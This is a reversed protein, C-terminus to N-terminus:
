SFMYELLIRGQGNGGQVAAKDKTCLVMQM